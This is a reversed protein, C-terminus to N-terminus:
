NGVVKYISFFNNAYLKPFDLNPNETLILEYQPYNFKIDLIAKENLTIFHMRGHPGVSGNAIGLKKEIAFRGATRELKSQGLPWYDPLMYMPHQDVKPGWFGIRDSRMYFETIYPPQIIGQEKLSNKKLWNLADYYDAKPIKIDVNFVGNGPVNQCSWLVSKDIEPFLMLARIAKSFSGNELDFLVNLNTIYPRLDFAEGAHGQIKNLIFKIKDLQKKFGEVDHKKAFGLTKEWEANYIDVDENCVQVFSDTYIHKTSSSPGVYYWQWDKTHYLSKAIQASWFILFAALFFIVRAKQKDQIISFIFSKGIMFGALSFLSAIVWLSDWFRTLIVLRQINTPIYDIIVQEFILGALSSLVSYCLAILCVLLMAKKSGSSIRRFYELTFFSFLVSFFLGFTKVPQNLFHYSFLYDDPESKLAFGLPSLFSSADRPQSFEGLFGEVAKIDLFIIVFCIVWVLLFVFIETWYFHQRVGSYKVGILNWAILCFLTLALFRLGFKVHLITGLGVLLGGFFMRKHTLALVGGLVLPVVLTRPNYYGYFIQPGPAPITFEFVSSLISHGFSIIFGSGFLAMWFDWGSRVLLQALIGAVLFIMVVASIVHLAPSFFWDFPFLKLGYLTFFEHSFFPHLDYEAGGYVRLMVTESHLVSDYPTLIIGKLIAM